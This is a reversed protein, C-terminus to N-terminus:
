VPGSSYFVRRVGPFLKKQVWNSPPALSMFNRYDFKPHREYAVQHLDGKHVHIFDAHQNIGYFDIYNSIKDITKPDLKLPFGFKLDKSDKGHTLMFAHRGYYRTEIFDKLVDVEVLEASYKLNVAYKIAVSLLEAFVGSHNDDTVKRIYIKNAVKAAVIKDLFDLFTTLAIEFSDADSLNQPLDHGGRTTKGFLGDLEDGLDDLFLVDFRGYINFEKMIAAFIREHAREFQEPGYEFKYLGKGAPNPDMGLHADSKTAILARRQKTPTIKYPTAPNTIFQKVIGEFRKYIEEPDAEHKAFISYNKSKFWFNRINQMPIGADKATRLLGSAMEVFEPNNNIEDILEKKAEIQDRIEPTEKAVLKVLRCIERCSWTSLEPLIKKLDYRGMGGIIDTLYPVWADGFKDIIHQYPALEQNM